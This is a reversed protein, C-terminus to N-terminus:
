GREALPYSTTLFTDLYYTDRLYQQIMEQEKANQAGFVTTRGSRDAIIINPQGLAKIEPLIRALFQDGVQNLIVVGYSQTVLPVPANEESKRRYDLMQIYRGATDNRSVPAPAIYSVAERIMSFQKQDAASEQDQDGQPLPADATTPAFDFIPDGAFFTRDVFVFGVVLFVLLMLTSMVVSIFANM